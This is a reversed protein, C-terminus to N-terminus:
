VLRWGFGDVVLLWGCWVGAKHDLGGSWGVTSQTVCFLSCSCWTVLLLYVAVSVGIM